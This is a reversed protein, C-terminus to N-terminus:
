MVVYFGIILLCAIQRKSYENYCLARYRQQQLECNNIFSM